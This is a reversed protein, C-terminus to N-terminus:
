KVREVKMIEDIEETSIACGRLKLGWLIGDLIEKKNTYKNEYENFLGMEFAITMLETSRIISVSKVESKFEKLKENNITIKTDLKRELLLALKKYDEVIM